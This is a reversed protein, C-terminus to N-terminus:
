SFTTSLPYSFHRIQTLLCRSTKVWIKRVKEGPVTSPAGLALCLPLEGPAQPSQQAM